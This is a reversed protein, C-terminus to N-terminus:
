REGALRKMASLVERTRGERGAAIPLHGLVYDGARPDTAIERAWASVYERASEPLRGIEEEIGLCGDLLAVLDEFDNSLYPDKHGRDCYAEIKCVFLWAAPFVSIQRGSALKISEAANAAEGFWQGRFGLISPDVPMIDVKVGGVIWRCIPGDMDHRLDHRRLEAELAHYDQLTLIQVVCDVDDTPRFQSRAAEDLRLAVTTAGLFIPPPSLWELARAVTELLEDHLM